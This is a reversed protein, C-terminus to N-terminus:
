IFCVVRLFKSAAPKKFFLYVVPLLFIFPLIYTKGILNIVPYKLLFDQFEGFFFFLISALLIILAATSSKRKFIKIILLFLVFPVTLYLFFLFYSENYFLLFKYFNFNHLIFVGPVLIIAMSPLLNSPRRPM